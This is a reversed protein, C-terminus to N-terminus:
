ALLMLLLQVKPMVSALQYSATAELQGHAASYWMGTHRAETCNCLARPDAVKKSQPTHHNALHLAKESVPTNSTFRTRLSQSQEPQRQKAAGRVQETM